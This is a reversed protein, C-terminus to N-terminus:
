FSNLKQLLLYYYSLTGPAMYRPSGTDSTLNYLDSNDKCRLHERLEKALGFDFVKIDDRVDFGVNKIFFAHVCNNTVIPILLFWVIFLLLLLLFPM